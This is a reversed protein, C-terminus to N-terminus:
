SRKSPSALRVGSTPGIEHGAASILCQMGMVVHDGIVIEGDGADLLSGANLFCRNGIRVRGTFYLGERLENAAGIEIGGLRLLPARMRHPTVRSAALLNRVLGRSTANVAVM